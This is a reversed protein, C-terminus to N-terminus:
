SGKAEREVSEATERVGKGGIISEDVGSSTKPDHSPQRGGVTELGFVTKYLNRMMSLGLTGSLRSREIVMSTKTDTRADIAITM